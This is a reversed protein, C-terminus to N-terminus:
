AHPPGGANGAVVRLFRHRGVKIEDGPELTSAFDTAREGNRLVAGQRVLRRVEAASKALGASVLVRDLRAAEPDESLAHEDMEAPTEGRQITAEFYAQAETAAEPGHLSSTIERALRKKAEMPPGALVEDIEDLPVSTLLTYFDRMASDPLSMVKGFMDAPSDDIGIHNGMSKSMRTHGDTGVLIPVTIVTQPPQGYERQLVRGAMLNFLQETGGVQVDTELAVADYAQMIAYMFESVHIPDHRELRKAFNDRELFQAVTFHTCLRVVDAFTLQALWDANYRVTTREPDLVRFVQRAFSQANAALVEPSLMPREKNKDSPDGVLGTFTGILFTVDHGLDQFQRLKRMTLTHGLHLDVATPDYGCYVRLPRDEELRRRLEATMTRATQEDGFETGRLLVALQDDVPAMRRPTVGAPQGTV